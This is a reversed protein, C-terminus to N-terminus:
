NGLVAPKDIFQTLVEFSGYTFSVEEELFDASDDLMSLPIKDLVVNYYAITQTGVSTAPDDNTVQLSIDPMKGTKQFDNAVKVFAPTGYYVSMSGNHKVGTIKQQITKTGVVPFDSKNYEETAEFKKLGFLEVNKGDITAFAKGSKGNIGDNQLLFAM